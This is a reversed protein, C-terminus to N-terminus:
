QQKTKPTTRRGWAWKLLKCFKWVGALGLLAITLCCVYVDISNYVFWNIHRAVSQSLPAGSTAIVHEIWWIALKLPELPRERFELTSRKMEAAFGEQLITRLAQTLHPEDFDAFDVIVGFRRQVVAGANLFQDGYFPTVLMPVACYISETTGLLGGHSLFAKVKPHCLLDRQPLWEYTHLNSPKNEALTQNTWRMVFTYGPLQSITDFLAQLKGAPLTSPNVMSGWSIYIVGLNSADFLRELHLPLPKAPGVQLGGVEVVNAAYPRSGTLAHHQNILMLSTNKVIENIPPLGFGFRQSIMADTAPQTIFNYLMNVIHFHFFNNLREVFSMQDTYTLFNMPMIPNIFPTGMRKYHWPMIACSSLAIVPADLLHAVAALCDNSFHELIIVDYRQPSSLLQAILPSNLAVRCSRLGWDHLMFFTPVKFPQGLLRDSQREFTQLDVFDTLLPMGEFVYDTYNAMPQKLPFYSYMSVNHGREALAVFMPRFFDFHSKGPHGFLGLIQASDVSSPCLAASIGLGLWVMLRLM